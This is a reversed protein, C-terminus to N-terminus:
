RGISNVTAKIPVFDYFMAAILVSLGVVKYRANKCVNLAPVPPITRHFIFPIFTGSPDM